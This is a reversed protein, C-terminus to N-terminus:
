AQCSECYYLYFLDVDEQSGLYSYDGDFSVFNWSKGTLVGPMDDHQFVTFNNFARQNPLVLRRSLFNLTEADSALVARDTFYTDQALVVAPPPLSDHASLSTHWVKTTAVNIAEGNLYGFECAIINLLVTAVIGIRAARTEGSHSNTVTQNRHARTAAVICAAEDWSERLRKRRRYVEFLLYAIFTLFIIGPLLLTWYYNHLTFILAIQVVNLVLFVASMLILILYLVARDTTPVLRASFHQLHQLWAIPKTHPSKHPTEDASHDAEDSVDRAEEAVHVPSLPIQDQSLTRARRYM